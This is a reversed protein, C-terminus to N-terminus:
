PKSTLKKQGQKSDLNVNQFNDIQHLIQGYAQKLSIEMVYVVDHGLLASANQAKLMQQAPYERQEVAAIEDLPIVVKPKAPFNKFAVDDSYVFLGHRNLVIYRKVLNHHRNVFKSIPGELIVKNLARPDDQDMEEKKNIKKEIAKMKAVEEKSVQNEPIYPLM